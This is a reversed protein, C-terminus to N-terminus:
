DSESAERQHAAVRLLLLTAEPDGTRARERIASWAALLEDDGVPTVAELGALEDAIRELLDPVGFVNGSNGIGSVVTEGGCSALGLLLLAPALARRKSRNM